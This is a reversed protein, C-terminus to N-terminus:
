DPVDALSWSRETDANEEAQTLWDDFAQSQRLSLTAEDLPRDPQREDITVVHFGLYSEVPESFEGPQLAFAAELISAVVGSQDAALWGLAGGQEVTEEDISYGAVMDAWVAGNRLKELVEQATEVTEVLIHYAQVHEDTTPVEAALSEALKQRLLGQRVANRMDAETFNGVEAELADIYEQYAADFAEKTMPTPAETPTLTTTTTIPTPTPAPPNRDYGMQQEISLQVEDDSVTLGRKEAEQRVLSEDILEELTDSGVTFLQTQVQQLQSDFYQYLFAQTEDNPDYGAQQLALIQEQQELYWRNYLVRKQYYERSIAQGNVTAVPRRPAIVYEQVVGVLLVLVVLAVVGAVFLWIMQQQRKVRKSRAIQKKTPSKQLTPSQKAKAM